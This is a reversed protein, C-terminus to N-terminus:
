VSTAGSGALRGGGGRLRPHLLDRVADGFMNLSFVTITLCLSPWFALRPAIEMYQRGERSLLGGWDPIGPPLGFGLFGLSALALIVGGISVSFTIIVIPLVNPVVHRMFTRLRSSGVADAAQFYVNEKIGIVAGRIVRSGGIGGAIGLVTCSWAPGPGTPLEESGRLLFQRFMRAAKIQGFVPEVVEKRKGYIRRGAQTRLKRSMRDKITASAPIRGRPCPEQRQSQTQRETAIYLEVQNGLETVHKEAFYGADCSLKEPLDGDTNRQILKVMSPLQKKDNGDQTVAAAVIVQSEADVAAQCNYSQEFTKKTHDFMIRSAPDTFNYQDKPKPEVESAPRPQNDDDAQPSTSEPRSVAAKAKARAQLAAKDARIRALRTQRLELEEPLETGGVGSDHQANEATDVQEAQQMLKQIEQELEVEKKEMRQYSMAKHKSANAHIKTGDLAIHGMKVLGAEQCLQLVELFLKRFAKMHRKRFSAITDHDPHQDTSVLRFPVSEYTAQEIKRSSYVGVSYALLLLGLMMRPDYGPQGGQSNDYDEYLSSLDIEQLVDIIFYAVHNGPLWEALSPPLLFDQDPEYERFTATSVGWAVVSLSAM